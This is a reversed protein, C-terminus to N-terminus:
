EKGLLAQLAAVEADAFMGTTPIGLHTQLAMVAAMTKPGYKGDVALQPGFSVVGAAEAINLAAQVWAVAGTHQEAALLAVAAAHLAPNLTPFFYAGVASLVNLIPASEASIVSQVKQLSSGTASGWANSISTLLSVGLPLLSLLATM